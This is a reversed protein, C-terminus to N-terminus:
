RPCGRSVKKLLALTKKWDLEKQVAAEIKARTNEGRAIAALISFYVAYDKGFEEVLMNKGEAIFLSDEQIMYDLMKTNTFIGNDM